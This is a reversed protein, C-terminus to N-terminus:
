EAYRARRPFLESSGPRCKVGKSRSLSTEFNSKVRKMASSSPAIMPASSYLTSSKSSAVM